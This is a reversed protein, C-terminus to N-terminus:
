DTLIDRSLQNLCKAPLSFIDLAKQPLIQYSESINNSLRLQWIFYQFRWIHVFIWQPNYLHTLMLDCLFSLTFHVIYM